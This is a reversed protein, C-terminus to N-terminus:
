GRTASPSQSSSDQIQLRCCHYGNSISHFVSFRRSRLFDDDNWRTHNSLRGNMLLCWFCCCPCAVVSVFLIRFLCFIKALRTNGDHIRTDSRFCFRDTLPDRETMFFVGDDSPGRRKLVDSFVYFKTWQKITEYIWQLSLQCGYLFFKSDLM